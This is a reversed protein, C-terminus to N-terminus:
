QTHRDWLGVLVISQELLQALGDLEQTVRTFPMADGLRDVPQMEIGLLLLPKGLVYQLTCRARNALLALLPLKTVRVAVQPGVNDGARPHSVRERAPKLGAPFGPTPSSIKHKRSTCERSQSM